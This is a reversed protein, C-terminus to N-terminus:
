RRPRKGVGCARWDALRTEALELERTPTKQTRKEFAHLALLIHGGRAEASFLLRFSRNPAEVRVEYVDGRLHRAAELGNEVVDDMGAAFAVLEEQSLRARTLFEKVPRVKSVTEYQRWQRRYRM